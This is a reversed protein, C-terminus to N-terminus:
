IPGPTLFQLPTAAQVNIATLREFQVNPRTAKPLREHLSRVWASYSQTLVSDSDQLSREADFPLMPPARPSSPPPHSLSVQCAVSDSGQMTCEADFLQM